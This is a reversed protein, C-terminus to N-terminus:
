GQLNERARAGLQTVQYRGDVLGPELLGWERSRSVLGMVNTDALSGNWEPFSAVLSQRSPRRTAAVLLRRWAAHEEPSYHGLHAWWLAAAGAPHPVDGHLGAAVMGRLVAVGADTPLLARDIDRVPAALGLLVLPGEIGNGVFASVFRDYSKGSDSDPKPFGVSRRTPSPKPEEMGHFVRSVEAVAPRLAAVYEAWPAPGRREVAIRCLLDLAFLSPLDRNHLGFSVGHHPTVATTPVDEAAWAGLTLADEIPRSDVALVAGAALALTRPEDRVGPAAGAASRRGGRGEAAARDRAVADSALRDWLADAAYESRDAYVGNSEAIV